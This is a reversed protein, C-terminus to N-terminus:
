YEYVVGVVLEGIVTYWESCGGQADRLVTLLFKYWLHISTKSTLSSSKSCIRKINRDRKYSNSELRVNARNKINEIQSRVNWFKKMFDQNSSGMSMKWSIENLHFQLLYDYGRTFKTSSKANCRAREIGQMHCKTKLVFYNNSHNGACRSFGENVLRDYGGGGPAAVDTGVVNRNEVHVQVVRSLM